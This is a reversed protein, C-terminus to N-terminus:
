MLPIKDFAYKLQRLEHLSPLRLNSDVGFADMILQRDVSPKSLRFFAGPIADACFDSLANTIRDASLGLEWNRVNKTEKGLHVLIKYQIIRIMSLAIFCTLFHANIHDATKVFVPRGELDTKITRFADEIRSLGHYKDIVEHDPMDVESTIVTYYGMLAIDTEIKDMDLSLISVTDLIEGTKKDAQTKKLYKQLKSQKDKLKDPFEIVANLYDLFNKNEHRAHEYQARSWYSVIKEAIKVSVGNEDEVTRQRIMSKSRFTGNKNSIYDAQDIIWAKTKKDSGKASKSVIYGNGSSLIRALNKGSNLGGDAVIIVRGFAMKDFTKELAPRLTTQDIHNGPFLRYAIPIGNSDMFLGM